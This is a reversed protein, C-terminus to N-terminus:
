VQAARAVTQGVQRVAGNYYVILGSFSHRVAYHKMLAIFAVCISVLSFRSAKFSQFKAVLSQVCAMAGRRSYQCNIAPMDVACLKRDSNGRMYNAADGPSACKHEHERARRKELDWNGGM